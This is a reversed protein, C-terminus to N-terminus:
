YRCSTSILTKPVKLTDKWTKPQSKWLAHYTTLMINGGATQELHDKTKPNGDHDYLDKLFIINNSYLTKNFPINWITNGWIPQDRIDIQNNSNLCKYWRIFSLIVSTWFPNRCNQQIIKHYLSGTWILRDIKYIMAFELWDPSTDIMKKLWTLKLSNDFEQINILSLGGQDWDLCLTKKSVEHRKKKWIFDYCM